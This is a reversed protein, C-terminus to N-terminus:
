RCDAEVTPRMLVLASKNNTVEAESKGIRVVLNRKTRVRRSIYVFDVNATILMSWSRFKTVVSSVGGLSINTLFRSNERDSYYWLTTCFVLITHSGL